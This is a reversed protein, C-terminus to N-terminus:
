AAGGVWEFLEFPSSFEIRANNIVTKTGDGSRYIFSNGPILKYTPMNPCFMNFNCTPGVTIGAGAFAPGSLFNPRNVTFTIDNSGTATVRNVVTFPYPNAGIQILDNPEFMITGSTVGVSSLGTLSLQTGAFSSVTLANIQNANMQGQYRFIWAICTDSFNIIQPAYRDMNDLAEVLTRNDWWSLNAPMDITFRWPNRTPISSTRPIENRTYQIGVVKRRDMTITSARNLIDQIGAM